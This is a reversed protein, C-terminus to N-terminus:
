ANEKTKQLTPATRPRVLKAVFPAALLLVIVIYVVIAIPESLVSSWEGGGLQLTQRLQREVRPGLIVGIILPLVPLGFRRMMLGLLGFILLLVLDLWQLNVAYAGLVAFFLIGAYLYPRPTRLLKAWLPALPLNLVLLLFNGIFLSAILTWILLPEKDFLTPGPQIGYSVFATLMVAATANTPLGLSLMPVLTGAASANNAAEPGAVGEIAGKGFEEPHKSLKKETIYSLFTPLEAGGAPLAGFPFGYATGRLWPKWSRKWDSKGMWPRGVPIVEAPKRRLHAAVWLAEGLAFVAVAIVVIDIGDSLQAVGFTARPQGTLFDIGVLGIALGLLLSICGRLKSSGLVATVAVLALLMIALYSPAGLSVAFRSVIPAFLVLLMTGISGAIFSGIAATALAQAARGAKAMKNGEIATIVSSSEGPTNLLISTTSGGYMGGYYIGAFMIFAASPSVNYTIPLLLAVTMAPGIGPLVGVATGLLVGICAYLLNMPTVAEAFGQMLWNLNDM